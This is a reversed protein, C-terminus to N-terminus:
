ALDFLLLRAGDDGATVTLEDTEWVRAGDGKRLQQGEIRIDGSIVQVWARREAGLPYSIKTLPSLETTLISADAELYVNAGDKNAALVQWHDIREKPDPLYEVYSPEVNLQDPEIWMQFLHVPGAGENMESHQIGTGASMKQVGGAEMVHKAGTSDQHTLESDVIYTIIEMNKHGHRDFGRGGKVVDENIVRLSGFGMEQADYYTDFSFTHYSTLWSYEAKGRDESKRIQIKM